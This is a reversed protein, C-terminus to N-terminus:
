PRLAGKKSCGDPSVEPTGTALSGHRRSGTSTAASSPVSTPRPSVDASTAARKSDRDAYFGDEHVYAKERPSEGRLYDKTLPPREYPREAESGLVIVRGDFGQARLEELAKAGALERGVIMFTRETM